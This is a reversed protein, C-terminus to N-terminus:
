QHQALATLFRSRGFPSKTTQSCRATGGCACNGAPHPKLTFHHKEVVARGKGWEANNNKDWRRSNQGRVGGLSPATNPVAPGQPPVEFCFLLLGPHWLRPLVWLVPAKAPCLGWTPPPSLPASLCHAQVPGSYGEGARPAKWLRWAAMAAEARDGGPARDGGWHLLTATVRTAPQSHGVAGAVRLQAAAGFVGVSGNSSDSSFFSSPLHGLVLQLPVVQRAVQGSPFVGGTSQCTLM